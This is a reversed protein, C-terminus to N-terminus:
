KIMIEEGSMAADLEVLGGVGLEFINNTWFGCGWGIEVMVLYDSNLMPLVAGGL